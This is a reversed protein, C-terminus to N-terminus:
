GSLCGLEVKCCTGSSNQSIQIEFYDIGYGQSYGKACLRAKFRKVNGLNDYKKTFVWKNKIPKVNTSPTTLKWTEAVEISDLESKIAKKWQSSESCTIAEDYSKPCDDQLSTNLCLLLQDDLDKIPIQLDRSLM